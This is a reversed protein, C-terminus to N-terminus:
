TNKLDDFSIQYKYTYNNNTINRISTESLNYKKALYVYNGGDFEERIM